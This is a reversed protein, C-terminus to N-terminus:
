RSNKINQIQNNIIQTEKLIESSKILDNNGECLHLEQMKQILREKLYEEKLNLLMEKIDKKLNANKDGYFIEAEFILDGIDSDLLNLYKLMYQPMLSLDQSALNPSQPVLNPDSKIELIEVIEKFIEEFDSNTLILDPNESNKPSNNQPTLKDASFTSSPGKQWFIIGALKRLINERKLNTKLTDPKPYILSGTQSGNLSGPTGSLDSKGFIPSKQYKQSTLSTIENKKIIERIDEERIGSKDAILTIFHSKKVPSNIYELYPLVKKEIELKIKLVDNKSSSNSIFKDMLFEIIHKANKIIEKWSDVGKQSILDAPDLNDPIQAAKVNMDLSLAIKAARMSANFGAEDADFVFVINPSLRKIIGLNNVVGNVLESSGTLATGSTAVTNKFNIQHSLILDFQGEVLISFNNKRIAEKAKDIGYLIASKQFILSEPSNLYKPADVDEVFLRGSFAIVRGSSDSLPFMIRGRFRNYIGKETKKILGAKELEQDTFKTPPTLSTTQKFYTYLDKWSNEAFGIRFNKISKDNLGRNKLYDLAEKNSLLNNEFFKTAEEMIQYLKEKESYIIKNNQDKKFDFLGLTVGAREALIKLAGRFDLGEFQEVFSFIDGKAGCGFCYYTGRDPSIFFSPTKENHFPCRAKLNVGAKDLKIYSSIVEEISIKEKIKQVPSDM